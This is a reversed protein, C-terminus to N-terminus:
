SRAMGSEPKGIKIDTAYLDPELDSGKLATELEAFNSIMFELEGSNIKRTAAHLRHHTDVGLYELLAIRQTTSALHEYEVELWDQHLEKLRQCIGRYFAQNRAVQEKLEEPSVAIPLPSKVRKSYEYSEWGGTIEAVRESVFTRIRNRRRIVIKRIDPNGLVEDFVTEPQDINIKFGTAKCDTAERWALQLFELPAKERLELNGLSRNQRHYTQSVRIGDPNFLEHHCLIDPHSDLLTCLWNSGCRPTAIIVFRTLKQRPHM